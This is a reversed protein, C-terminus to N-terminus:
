GEIRRDRAYSRQCELKHALEVVGNRGLKEFELDYIFRLWSVRVLIDMWYLGSTEVLLESVIKYHVWGGMPRAVGSLIVAVCEFVWLLCM